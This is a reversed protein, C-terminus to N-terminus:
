EGRKAAENDRHLKALERQRNARDQKSSQVSLNVASAYAAFDSLTAEDENKMANSLAKISSPIEEKKIRTSMALWKVFKPNTMLRATLNTTALGSLLIAAAPFNGTVVAGSIAGVEGAVLGAAATGSPNQFVKSGEKIYQSAKAIQELSRRVDGDKGSFLVNKAQPSIKNWNTLFTQTSFIDGTANQQGAKALGLRRIFDSKVIDREAPTLSKLVTSIKTAGLEMDQPNLATSYIQEATKNTGIVKNLVTDIRDHGAKAFANARNMAKVAEPNGTSEAAANLDQSLSAYLAKWKSRPVDSVISPNDIEAGVLSRLKKIAEYPLTNLQAPKALPINSPAPGTGLMAPHREATMVGQTKPATDSKMASEIGQIKANKFWASLAPANPIDANMSALTEKTRSIDVETQKPLYQDLKNYLANQSERFRSIFGGKGSIGKEIVDGAITPSTVSSLSDAIETAKKGIEEASREAVNAMVGASGPLKSLASEIAQLSRSGTVQGASPKTIGSDEFTKAREEKVDQKNVKEITSEEKRMAHELRAAHPNHPINPIVGPMTPLKTAEFAKGLTELNQQGGSSRPQYTYREQFSKLRDEKEAQTVGTIGGYIAGGITAAGGTIAGLAAEAVGFAKHKKSFAMRNDETLKESTVQETPQGGPIDASTYQKDTKERALSAVKQSPYDTAARAEIQDPTVDDPVGQYSHSTGDAFTINVTNPM